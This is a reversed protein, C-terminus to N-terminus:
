IPLGVKNIFPLINRLALPEVHVVCGVDNIWVLVTTNDLNNTYYVMEAPQRVNKEPNLKRLFEMFNKLGEGRIQHPTIEMEKNADRVRQDYTDIAVQGPYCAIVSPARPAQAQARSQANFFAVSIAAAILLKRM